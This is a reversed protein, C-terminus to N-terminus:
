HAGELGDKSARRGFKYKAGAKDPFGHCKKMNDENKTLMQMLYEHKRQTKTKM